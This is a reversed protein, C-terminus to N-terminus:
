RRNVAVVLIALDMSSFPSLMFGLDSWMLNTCKVFVRNKCRRGPHALNFLDTCSVFNRQLRSGELERESMWRNNGNNGTRTRNCFQVSIESIELLLNWGIEPSFELM